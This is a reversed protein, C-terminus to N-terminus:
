RSKSTRGKCGARPLRAVVMTKKDSTNKGTKV